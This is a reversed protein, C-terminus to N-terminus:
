YEPKPSSITSHEITQQLSRLYYRNLIYNAQPEVHREFRRWYEDLDKKQDENLEWTNFLDLGHDGSWLLLYNCKQEVTRKSLPGDFLLNCKQRFRRFRKPLDIDLKWNMKPPEFGALALDSM